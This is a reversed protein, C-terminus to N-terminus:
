PRAEAFLLERSDDDPAQLAAARFYAGRAAMLEAHTGREVIRGDALVLIKDARRLTSLRNAVVLTTRGSMANEMASLVEHETEPDIATTPDDLLLIPPKLLLARAIAIRQRQGGSLNTAGEELITDYGQPLANVFDHAGAIRAADEIAARTAEPHGFAINQAVTSKFLLSEQFVVGINRRLTDLDLERIDVDDVCIRGATPDYFRPVLSLLTSKGAGTTGVIALVEGPEVQFDIGELVQDPADYHFDVQEFRVRGAIREPRRPSPPSQVELPADLVEFVRRAGTMSQQLTNIIGAMSSIQGAFQQLLGAFVILDGISLTARQVLHAGYLLLVAVDIQTIIQVSPGYRSVRRFIERQQELLEGNKNRFRSLEESERGFVKTVQIGHVGESMVLVMEDVLERNRRYAPRAWRSFRATLLWIVPTLGLSAVTLGVHTRLMYVLYVGLSLVMVASQLVVGDVFSRLSQVDSTVRNIISGSANEDFFRFSLRQLKDFVQRRLDPVLRLHILKGVEVSYGYNLSARTLALLLVLLGIAVLLHGPSSGEPPALGLPWVPAPAHRDLAHRILDIAVGTLRLGGLGLALLLAQFGFVALCERRYRATLAMLRRLLQANRSNGLSSSRSEPTPM